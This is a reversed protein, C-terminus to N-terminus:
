FIFPQFRLLRDGKLPFVWRFRVMMKLNLSNISRPTDSVWARGRGEGKGSLGKRTFNLMEVVDRCDGLSGIDRAVFRLEAFKSLESWFDFRSPRSAMDCQVPESQSELWFDPKSPRSAMDGQGPESRFKYWFDFKSPRSAM